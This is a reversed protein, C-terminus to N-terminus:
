HVARGRLARMSSCASAGWRCPAGPIICRREPVGLGSRVAVSSAPPTARRPTTRLRNRPKEQAAQRYEGGAAPGGGASKRLRPM